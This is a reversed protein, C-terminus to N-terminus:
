RHCVVLDRREVWSGNTPRSQAVTMLRDLGRCAKGVYNRNSVSGPRALKGIADEFGVDPGQKKLAAALVQLICCSSRVASDDQINRSVYIEGRRGRVVKSIAGKINHLIWKFREYFSKYHLTTALKTAFLLSRQLDKLLHCKAHRQRSALTYRHFSVNEPAILHSAVTEGQALERPGMLSSSRWCTRAWSTPMADKAQRAKLWAAFETHQLEISKPNTTQRETETAKLAKVYKRLFDKNVKMDAYDKKQLQVKRIDQLFESLTFIQAIDELYEQSPPFYMKDKTGERRVYKTVLEEWRDGWHYDDSAATELHLDGTATVRPRRPTAEERHARLVAVGCKGSAEHM